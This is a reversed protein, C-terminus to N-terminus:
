GDRRPEEHEDTGDAPVAPMIDTLAHPGSSEGPRSVSRPRETFAPPDKRLTEEFRRKFEDIVEDPIQPVADDQGAQYGNDYVHGTFYVPPRDYGLLLVTLWAPLRLELWRWLTYWAAVVAGTVFMTVAPNVLLEHLAPVRSLLFALLAGWGTPVVTRLWAAVRDSNIM